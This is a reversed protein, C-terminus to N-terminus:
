QVLGNRNHPAWHRREAWKLQEGFTVFSIVPEM